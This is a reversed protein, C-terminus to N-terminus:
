QRIIMQNTLTVLQMKVLQVIKKVLTVSKRLQESDDGQPQWAVLLVEVFGEKFAFGTTPCKWIKSASM